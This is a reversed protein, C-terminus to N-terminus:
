GKMLEELAQEQNNQHTLIALDIKEQEFGLDSLTSFNDLYSMVQASDEQFLYFGRLADM